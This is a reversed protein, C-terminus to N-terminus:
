VWGLDAKVQEWPISSGEESMAADFAAIDEQEELADLMAEYQTPSIVVAAVSGRREIFVPESAAQDLVESFVERARAASYNTMPCIYMENNNIYM